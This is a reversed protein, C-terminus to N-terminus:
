SNWCYTNTVHEPVLMAMDCKVKHVDTYDVRSVDGDALQDFALASIRAIHSRSKSDSVYLQGSINRGRRCEAM